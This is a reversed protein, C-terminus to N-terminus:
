HISTQGGNFNEQQTLASSSNGEEMLTSPYELIMAEAVMESGIQAQFWKLNLYLILFLFRLSALKEKTNSCARARISRNVVIPVNM